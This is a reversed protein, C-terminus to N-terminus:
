AENTSLTGDANMRVRKGDVPVSAPWRAGLLRSKSIRTVNVSNSQNGGLVHFATADEGVYFGVHGQWGSKKGRWFVLVAGYVPDCSKGFCLWQRAGLVNQPQTDDPAGVRMCHAVFLGCWPVDDDPYHVDLDDAWDMIVPNSGKGPKEKVGKQRHAEAMWLPSGPRTKLKPRPIAGSNFLRVLTIPGPYARPRLGNQAKFDAMAAQTRPGAAGDIQGTYYALAQLREQVTRVLDKTFTTM